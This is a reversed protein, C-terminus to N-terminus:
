NLVLTFNVAKQFFEYRLYNFIVWLITFMYRMENESTMM